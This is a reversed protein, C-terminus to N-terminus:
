VSFAMDFVSKNLSELEILKSETALKAEAIRGTTEDLMEVIRRQEEIPPYSIVIGKYADNDLNRIGTSHSQMAETAGSLYIWHLQKHLFRADLEDPNIVRLASTFNSFSYDGENRDFFVVRGVPQKPGGGSKELIIDGYILRRKAFKKEEVELYAIDSFDLTGDKKFNTNRIVGVNVYPPVAGKWLGGIFTCLERLPKSTILGAM